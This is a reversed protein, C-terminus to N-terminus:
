GAAARPRIGARGGAPTRFRKEVTPTASVTQLHRVRCFRSAFVVAREIGAADMTAVIQQASYETHGADEHKLHAHADIIM